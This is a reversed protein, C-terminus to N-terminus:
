DFHRPSVGPHVTIKGTSSINALARTLSNQCVGEKTDIIIWTNLMNLATSWRAQNSLHSSRIFEDLVTKVLVVLRSESNPLDNEVGQPLKPPLFIHRFLFSFFEEDLEM